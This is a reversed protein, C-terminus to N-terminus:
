FCLIIFWENLLSSSYHIVASCTGGVIVLSLELGEGWEVRLGEGWGM